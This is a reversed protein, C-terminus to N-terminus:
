FFHKTFKLRNIKNSDKLLEKLIQSGEGYSIKRM